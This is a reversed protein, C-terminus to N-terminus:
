EIDCTLSRVPMIQNGDYAELHILKGGLQPKGLKIWTKSSLVNSYANKEVHM